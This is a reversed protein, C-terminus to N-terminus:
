LAKYATVLVLIVGRPFDRSEKWGGFGGGFGFHKGIRSFYVLGNIESLVWFGAGPPFRPVGQTFSPHHSHVEWDSIVGGGRGIGAEIGSSRGELYGGM